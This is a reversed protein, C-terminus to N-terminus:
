TESGNSQRAKGEKINNMGTVTLNREEDQMKARGSPDAAKRFTGRRNPVQREDTRMMDTGKMDNGRAGAREKRSTREKSKILHDQKHEQGEQGKM